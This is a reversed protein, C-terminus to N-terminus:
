PRSIGDRNSRRSFRVHPPMPHSRYRGRWRSASFPEPMAEAVASLMDLQSDPVASAREATPEPEDRSDAAETATGLGSGIVVAIAIVAIGGVAWGIPLSAFAVLVMMTLAAVGVILIERSAAM